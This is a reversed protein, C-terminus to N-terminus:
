GRNNVAARATMAWLPAVRSPSRHFAYSEKDEREESQEDNAENKGEWEESQEDNAEQQREREESQEDNAEQPM